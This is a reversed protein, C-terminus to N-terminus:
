NSAFSGPDEILRLGVHGDPILRSMAHKFVMHGLGRELIETFFARVVRLAAISLIHKPVM